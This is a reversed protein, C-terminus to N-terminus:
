YQNGQNTNSYRSRSDRAKFVSDQLPAPLTFTSAIRQPETRPATSLSTPVDLPQLDEPILPCSRSLHSLRNCRSFHYELDEYELTIPIEEGTDFEIVYDKILPKLGDILVRM